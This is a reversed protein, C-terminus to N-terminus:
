WRNAVCYECARGGCRGGEEEGETSEARLSSWGVKRGGRWVDPAPRAAATHAIRRARRAARESPISRLPAAGRSPPLQALPPPLWPSLSLRRSCATQPLTHLISSPSSPLPPHISLTPYYPITPYYPLAPFYPLTPYCLLTAYYLLTPFFPLSSFHALTPFCPLNPLYPLTATPCPMMAPSSPALFKPLPPSYPYPLTPYTPYVPLYPLTRAGGTTKHSQPRDRLHACAAEHATAWMCHEGAGRLWM